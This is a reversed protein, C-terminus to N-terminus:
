LVSDSDDGAEGFPELRTEGSDAQMLVQVRKDAEELRQSCFKALRMGEEFAQLSKDLTLEGHELTQVLTELRELAQEFTLDAM